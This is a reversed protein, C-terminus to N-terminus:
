LAGDPSVLKVVHAGFQLGPPLDQIRVRAKIRVRELSTPDLLEQLWKPFSFEAWLKESRLEQFDRPTTSTRAKPDRIDAGVHKNKWSKSCRSRLKPGPYGRSHGGSTRPTDTGSVEEKPQKKPGSDNGLHRDGPHPSASWIHPVHSYHFVLSLDRCGEFSTKSKRMGRGAVSVRFPRVLFRWWFSFFFRARFEPVGLCYGSFVLFFARFPCKKDKPPPTDQAIQLSIPHYDLAGWFVGVISNKQTEPTTPTQVRVLRSCPVRKLLGSKWFVEKSEPESGWFDWNSLERIHALPSGKMMFTKMSPRWAGHQELSKLTVTTGLM